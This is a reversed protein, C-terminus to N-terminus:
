SERQFRRVQKGTTLVMVGREFTVKMSIKMGPFVLLNKGKLLYPNRKYSIDKDWAFMNGTNAKGPQFEWRLPIAGKSIWYGELQKQLPHAAPTKAPKAAPTKAFSSASM